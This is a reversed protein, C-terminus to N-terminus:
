AAKRSVQRLKRCEVFLSDPKRVRSEHSDLQYGAFKEIFSADAQRIQFDSFGCQECLKKLSLRDYMWRHIEGQQRFVGEQFATAQERGMLLSVTWAALQQKQKVWWNRLNNKNAPNTPQNQCSELESGIRSRVFEANTKISDVMYPGMLGGSQHRVMQDLLELKMWEYNKEATSNGEWADDLMRLYIRSIQELDPVVVRLVGGPRLVRHCELVLAEGQAPTLHELVHSHYAADFSNDAFPLGGRIDYEIVDPHNSVLDINCWDPHFHAGCGVNLLRSNPDIPIKM